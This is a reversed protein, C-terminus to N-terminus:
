FFLFHQPCEHFMFRDRQELAGIQSPSQVKQCFFATKASSDSLSLFHLAMEAEAWQTRM